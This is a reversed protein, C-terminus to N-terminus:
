RERCSERKGSADQFALDGKEREECKSYFAAELLNCLLSQLSMERLM